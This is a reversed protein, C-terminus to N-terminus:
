QRAKPRHAFSPSGVKIAPLLGAGPSSCLTRTWVEPVLNPGPQKALLLAPDKRRIAAAPSSSRPNAPKVSAASTPRKKTRLSKQTSTNSCGPPPKGLVAPKAFSAPWRSFSHRSAPRPSKRPWRPDAKLTNRITGHAVGLVAAAQRLSMGLSLLAVLKGKSHDDFVAPRGRKPRTLARALLEELPDASEADPAPIQQGTSQADHISIGSAAWESASQEHLSDGATFPEDVALETQAPEQSSGDAPLTCADIKQGNESSDPTEPYFIPQEIEATDAQPADRKASSMAMAILSPGTPGCASPAFARTASIATKRSAFSM